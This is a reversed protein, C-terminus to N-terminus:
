PCPEQAVADFKINPYRGAIEQCASRWHERLKEFHPAPHSVIKARCNEYRAIDRKWDDMAWRKAIKEAM